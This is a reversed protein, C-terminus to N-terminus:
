GKTGAKAKAERADLLRELVSALSANGNELLTQPTPPAGIGSKLVRVSLLPPLGDKCGPMTHMLELAKRMVDTKIRQLENEARERSSPTQARALNTEATKRAEVIDKDSPAMELARALASNHADTRVLEQVKRLQHEYIVITQKYTQKPQGPKPYPAEIAQEAISFTGVLDTEVEVLLRAENRPTARHVIGDVESTIVQM